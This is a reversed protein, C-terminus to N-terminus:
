DFPLQMVSAFPAIITLNIVLIVLGWVPLIWGVIVMAIGVLSTVDSLGLNPRNLGLKENLFVAIFGCGSTSVDPHYYALMRLAVCALIGAIVATVWRIATPHSTLDPLFYYALRGALVVVAIYLLFVPLSMGEDDEM